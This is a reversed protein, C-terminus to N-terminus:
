KRNSIVQLILMLFATLRQKIFAKLNGEERLVQMPIFYMVLEFSARNLCSTLMSGPSCLVSGLCLSTNISSFPDVKITKTKQMRKSLGLQNVFISQQSCLLKEFEIHMAQLAQQAVESIKHNFSFVFRPYWEVNCTAPLSSEGYFWIM